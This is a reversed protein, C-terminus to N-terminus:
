NFWSVADFRDADPPAAHASRDSFSGYSSEWIGPIKESFEEVTKITM